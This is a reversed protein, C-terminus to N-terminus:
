FGGEMCVADVYYSNATFMVDVLSIIKVINNCHTIKELSTIGPVTVTGYVWRKLALNAYDM